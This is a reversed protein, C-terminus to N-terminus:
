AVPAGDCVGLASTACTSDFAGAAAAPSSGPSQITATSPRRVGTNLCIEFAISSLPPRGIVTLTSREPRVVARPERRVTSSRPRQIQPKTGADCRTECGSPALARSAIPSQQRTTVPVTALTPLRKRPCEPASIV